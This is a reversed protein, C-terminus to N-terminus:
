CRNFEPTMTCLAALHPLREAREDPPVSIDWNRGEAIYETVAYATAESVPRQHVRQIWWLAMQRPTTQDVPMVSTNIVLGNDDEWESAIRNMMNWRQILGSSTAWYEFEDPPGDPPRWEFLPSGMANYFSFFRSNSSLYPLGLARFTSIIWDLPRKIKTAWNAPDLFEPSRLILELVEAIQTPSEWRDLWRGVADNLLRQPVTGVFRRILKTCVHRATAPHTCIRDLAHAVEPEANQNPAFIEKLFIKLERSHDTEVVKFQGRNAASGSQEYTFGTLILRLAYVDWDIYSQAPDYNDYPQKSYNEEGMTHLELLERAYNENPNGARNLYNDLYYLMVPHRVTAELLTRFRGFAHARLTDDWRTFLSRTIYDSGLVNFHNHWFEVVREFLQRKSHIMRVITAHRVQLFPAAASDYSLNRRDYLQAWSEGFTARPHTALVADCASDNIAFPVLQQQLWPVYGAADIAAVDGPAPGYMLRNAAHQALTPQPAPDDSPYPTQRTSVASALFERRTSSPM